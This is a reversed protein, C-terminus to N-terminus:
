SQEAAGTRDGGARRDAPGVDGVGTTGLAEADAARSARSDAALPDSRTMPDQRDLAAWVTLGDRLAAPDHTRIWDVGHGAAWLEAALTAAGRDATPRGTLQGLFSKRSVSVLLPLEFRRLAQLSRLMALSPAADAGLFLGMGPDLVIRARDVGAATLAAIRQEFFEEAQRVVDSGAVQERRARGGGSRAFMVVLRATGAAAAAVAAPSRFGGVDNLWAVSLRNMAAMVEPKNSDVSVSVSAAQLREV